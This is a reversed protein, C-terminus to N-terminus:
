GEKRAEPVLRARAALLVSLHGLSGGHTLIGDGDAWGLQRLMWRVIGKEVATAAPGMEYVAMGNNVLAGLLDAFMSPIMPIAVQHGMYRPHRLHNSNAIFTRALATLDGGGSELLRD